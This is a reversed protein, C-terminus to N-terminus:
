ACAASALCRVVDDDILLNFKKLLLPVPLGAALMSYDSGLGDDVIIVSQQELSPFPKNNCCLQARREVEQMIKWAAMEIERESLEFRHILPM